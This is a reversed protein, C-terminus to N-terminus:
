EGLGSLGIECYRPLAPSMLASLAAPGSVASM